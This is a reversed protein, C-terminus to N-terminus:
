AVSARRNMLSRLQKRHLAVTTACLALLLVALWFLLPNKTTEGDIVYEPVVGLKTLHSGIAGLMVMAGFVGGWVATRPNLLLVVATLEAVATGYRGWPEVGLKEFTQIAYPDSILKPIAGPWLFMLSALGRVVWSAISQSKSHGDSTM